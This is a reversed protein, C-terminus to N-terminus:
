QRTESRKVEGKRKEQWRKWGSEDSSGHHITKKALLIVCFLVVVLNSLDSRDFFTQRTILSDHLFSNTM